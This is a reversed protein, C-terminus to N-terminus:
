GSSSITQLLAWLFATRILLAPRDIWETETHAGLGVTGLGDLGPIAGRLRNLDSAGRQHAPVCTPRLGVHEMAAILVQEYARTADTIVVPYSQGKDPVDLELTVGDVGSDAVGLGFWEM